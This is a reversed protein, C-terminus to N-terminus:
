RLLAILESYPITVRKWGSHSRARGYFHGNYVFGAPVIAITEGDKKM